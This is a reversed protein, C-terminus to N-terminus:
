AFSQEQNQPNFIFLIYNNGESFNCYFSNGCTNWFITLSSHTSWVRSFSLFVWIASSFDACGKLSGKKDRGFPWMWGLQLCFFLYMFWERWFTSFFNLFILHYASNTHLEQDKLAIHFQKGPIWCPHYGCWFLWTESTVICICWSPKEHNFVAFCPRASIIIESIM